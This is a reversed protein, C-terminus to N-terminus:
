SDSKQSIVSSSLERNMRKKLFVLEGKWFKTSLTVFQSGDRGFLERSNTIGIVYEAYHTTKKKSM